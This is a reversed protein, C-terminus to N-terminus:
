SKAAKAEEEQLKQRYQVALQCETGECKHNHRDRNSTSKGTKGYKTFGTCKVSWDKYVLLTVDDNVMNCRVTTATIQWDVM